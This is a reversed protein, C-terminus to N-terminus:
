PERDQQESIQLETKLAAMARHLTVRVNNATKGLAEAIEQIDLEDLYRMTIVQAYELHLRKLAERVRGMEEAEIAGQAVDRGDDLKQVHEEDLTAEGVPRSRYFDAIRYRAIRYLLAGASHVAETCFYTWAGTFTESTLEEADQKSPVKLYIFRYIRQVYVDYIEAYAKADRKSRIRHLLFQERIRNM